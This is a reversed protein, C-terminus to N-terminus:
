GTLLAERDMGHALLRLAHDASAAVFLATGGLKAVKARASRVTGADLAMRGQQAPLFAPNASAAAGAARSAAARGVRSPDLPRQAMAAALPEMVSRDSPRGPVPAAYRVQGEAVRYRQLAFAAERARSMTTYAIAEGPEQAPQDAGAPVAPLRVQAALVLVEPALGVALTDACGLVAQVRPATVVCVVRRDRLALLAPSMTTEGDGRRLATRKYEQVPTVVHMLIEPLKM